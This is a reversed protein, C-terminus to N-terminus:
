PLSKGEGGLGIGWVKGGWRDEGYGTTLLVPKTNLSGPEMTARGNIATTVRRAPSKLWRTGDKRMQMVLYM